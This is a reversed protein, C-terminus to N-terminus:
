FRLSLCSLGGDVKRFESVELTLAPYGADEIKRRTKPFGAPVLVTGNIWLSNAAYLEGSPVLIKNFNRFEPKGALENAILLNNNELFSVGTKLHLIKSMKIESGSMGYKELIATLQRAGEYNTRGSIGIYYHTGCMMIDGAEVTGPSRIEEINVFYKELVKRIGIIEGKRTPAGPNTIIACSRTCLAVDEIFTSDPFSEDADLVEVNLGLSELTEIYKSHQELALKCDPKGLGATSLGETIARCPKRVIANRFM